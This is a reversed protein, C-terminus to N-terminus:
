LDSGSKYNREAQILGVLASPHGVVAKDLLQDLCREKGSQGGM